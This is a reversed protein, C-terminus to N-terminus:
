CRVNHCLYHGGGCWFGSNCYRLGGSFVVDACWFVVGNPCQWYYAEAPQPAVLIGMCLMAGLLLGASLKMMKKM